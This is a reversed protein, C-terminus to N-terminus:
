LLSRSKKKIDRGGRWFQGFIPRGPTTRPFSYRPSLRTRISGCLPSLDYGRLPSLSALFRDGRRPEDGYQGFFGPSAGPALIQRREAAEIPHADRSMKSLQAQILLPPRSM